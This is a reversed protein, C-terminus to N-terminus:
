HKTKNRCVCLVYVLKFLKKHYHGHTYIRSYTTASLLRIDSSIIIVVFRLKNAILICQNLGITVYSDNSLMVCTNSKWTFAFEVRCENSYGSSIWSKLSRIPCQCNLDLFCGVKDIPKDIPYFRLTEIIMECSLGNWPLQQHYLGHTLSM